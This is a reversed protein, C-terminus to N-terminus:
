PVPPPTSFIERYRVHPYPPAALIQRSIKTKPIEGKQAVLTLTSCCFVTLFLADKEQFQLVTRATGTKLRFPQSVRKQSILGVYTKAAFSLRLSGERSAGPLTSPDLTLLECVLQTRM